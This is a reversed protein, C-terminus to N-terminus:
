QKNKRPRIEVKEAVNAKNLTITVSAGTTLDAITGPRVVKDKKGVVEFRTDKTVHVKTEQGGPAAEAKKVAGPRVVITASSPNNGPTVTVIIGILTNGDPKAALLRQPVAVFLVALVLGPM